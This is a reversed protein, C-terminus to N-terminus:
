YLYRLLTNICMLTYVYTSHTHAFTPNPPYGGIFWTPGNKRAAPNALNADGRKQTSPCIRPFIREVTEPPVISLKWSGGGMNWLFFWPFGSLGEMKQRTEPKPKGQFLPEMWEEALKLRWTADFLNKTSRPAEAVHVDDPVDLPPTSIPSRWCRHQALLIPSVGFCHLVPQHNPVHTKNKWEYQAHWLGLQSMNKLPTPWGSVLFCHSIKQSIKWCCSVKPKDQFPFMRKKKEQFSIIFWQIQPIM